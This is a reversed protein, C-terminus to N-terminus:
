QEGGPPSPTGATDTSAIGKKDIPTTAHMARETPARRGAESVLDSSAAPGSV